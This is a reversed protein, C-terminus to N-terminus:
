ACNRVCWLTINYRYKKDRKDHIQLRLRYSQELCMFIQFSFWNERLETNDPLSFDFNQLKQTFIIKYKALVQIALVCQCCKRVNYVKENNKVM